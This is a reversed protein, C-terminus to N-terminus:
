LNTFINMDSSRDTLSWDSPYLEPIYEFHLNDPFGTFSEEQYYSSWIPHKFIFRFQSAIYSFLRSSQTISFRRYTLAPHPVFRGAHMGELPSNNRYITNTLLNGLKRYFLSMDAKETDAAKQLFLAMATYAIKGVRNKSRTNVRLPLYANAKSLIELGKKEDNFLLEIIRTVNYSAEINMRKMEDQYINHVDPIDHNKELPKNKDTLWGMWTGWRFCLSTIGLALIDPDNCIHGLSPQKDLWEVVQDFLPPTPQSIHHCKYDKKEICDDVDGEFLSLDKYQIFLPKTM